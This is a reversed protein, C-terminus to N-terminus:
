THRRGPACTPPLSLLFACMRCEGRRRPQVQQSDLTSNIGTQLTSITGELSGLNSEKDGKNDNASSQEAECRRPVPTYFASLYSTAGLTSLRGLTCSTDWVNRLVYFNYAYM